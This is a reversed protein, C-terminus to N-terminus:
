RMNSPMDITAVLGVHDSPWLGESIQDSASAGVLDASFWGRHHGQDDAIATSRVLVFDIRQDPTREPGWCCTAGVNSGRGRNSWADRFGDAVLDGYTDTYSPASPDAAADSNLDGMLVTVGDLGALIEERLQTSQLEQIPRAAQTELHTAVFHHPIGDIDVSVQVWGRVFDVPGLPIRADYLGQDTDYDGIDDHVLMAVRDQVALAPFGSAGPPGIPLAIATTLQMVAMSYPLGRTAIETMVALLLDPGGASPTFAGAFSLTGTAYGVAEQLGVVDPRLSEIENVIEAARAPIDSNQVEAWFVSTAQIVAGIGAPSTDSLDLTFLPGTDGGLWLNQTYVSLADAHGPAGGIVAFEPAVIPPTTEQDLCASAGLSLVLALTAGTISRTPTHM